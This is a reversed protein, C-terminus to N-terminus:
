PVEPWFRAAEYERLAEPEDFFYEELIPLIKRRWITSLLKPSLVPHMFFAHGITHHRDRASTLRANLEDFGEFLSPVQNTRTEYYRELISRDPNCEFVEFRRRLAVDISRISRDATNMTGIFFLNRPLTFAGSYPLKIEEDRYEFLYMLEGFVRPLNARNMEDIILFHAANKERCRSAMELVVGPTTQFQLAGGVLQPRLGEIFQEYAYSPHFQVLSMRSPNTATLYRVIQQAVFTKGTGPPGSLVIQRTPQDGTIADIIENLAEETWLTSSLLEEFSFAVQAPALEAVPSDVLARGALDTYAENLIAVLEPPAPTLYGGQVLALSDTYFLNQMGGRRLARLRDAYPAEFFTERLLPPELIQYDTLKVRYSPQTGWETDAVGAFSECPAEVVSTATFGKNDTLHLVIDGPQVDRMFRYIDRGEKGREPSWLMQGLAMEGSLRDKRGSVLTKEIWVNGAKQPPMHPRSNGRELFASYEPYRKLSNRTLAPPRESLLEQGRATIRVHGDEPIDILQAQRLNVKAWRVRNSFIFDSGSPFKKQLDDDSLAFSTAIIPLLASEKRTEGDSLLQLYPLMIAQYDPISSADQGLDPDPAPNWERTVRDEYFSFGPGFSSELDRRINRLAADVDDSDSDGGFRSIIQKKHQMSVIPEFDSPYFIHMFANRATTSGTQDALSYFVTQAAAPSSFDIRQQKGRKAWAILAMIVSHQATIYYTGGSGVGDGFTAQLIDAPYAIQRWALIEAVRRIKTEARITSSHPFLYYIISAEAILATLAASHPEVQLRLREMYSLDPSTQASNIADELAALNSETWLEMDPWLYSRDAELCRNRIQQAARYEPATSVNM